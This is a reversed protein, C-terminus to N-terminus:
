VHQQKGMFKFHQQQKTRIHYLQKKTKKTTKKICRLTQMEVWYCPWPDCQSTPM